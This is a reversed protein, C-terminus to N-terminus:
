RIRTEVPDIIILDNDAYGIIEAIISINQGEGITDPINDGTLHLDYTVNKNQIHFGVGTTSTESYDGGYVLFNYRTKNNGYKQMNAINGDFEIKQGKYKEVFKKYSDIDSSDNLIHALETNNEKTLISEEFVISSEITSQTVSTEKTTLKYSSTTTNEVTETPTKKSSTDNKDLFYLAPFGIVLFSGLIILSIKQTRAQKEKLLQEEKERQIREEETEKKLKNFFQKMM